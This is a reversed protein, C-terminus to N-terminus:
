RSRDSFVQGRGRVAMRICTVLETKLEGHNQLDEPSMDVEILGQMYDIRGRHFSQTVGGM